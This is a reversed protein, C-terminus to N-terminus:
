LLYMIQLDCFFFFQFSNYFVTYIVFLACINKNVNFVVSLAAKKKEFVQLNAGITNIASNVATSVNLTTGNILTGITGVLGNIFNSWATM